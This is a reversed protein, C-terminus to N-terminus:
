HVIPSTPVSVDILTPRAKKSKLQDLLLRLVQLKENLDRWAGLEVLVGTRTTLQLREPSQAVVDSVEIALDLPMATVVALAARGVPSSVSTGPVPALKEGPLTIVVHPHPGVVEEIIRGEADVLWLGNEGALVAVAVCDEVMFTLGSPLTRRVQAEAIRPDAKLRDVVDNLNIDFLNQSLQLGTMTIIDAESYRTHGTIYITELQFFPSSLFLYTALVLAFLGLAISFGREARSRRM